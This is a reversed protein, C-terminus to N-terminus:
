DAYYIIKEGDDTVHYKERLVKRAYDKSERIRAIEDSLRQNEAQIGSVTEELIAKSKLLSFYSSISTPGRLVGVVIVVTAFIYLSGVGHELLLAVLGVQKPQRRKVLASGVAV